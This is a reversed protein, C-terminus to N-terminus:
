MPWANFSSRHLSQVQRYVKLVFTHQHNDPMELSTTERAETILFCFLGAKPKVSQFIVFVEDCLLLQSGKLELM